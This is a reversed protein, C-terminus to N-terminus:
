VWNDGSQDDWSDFDQNDQQSDPNYDAKDDNHDDNDVNWNNQNDDENQRSIEEHLQDIEDQQLINQDELERLLEHDELNQLSQFQDFGIRGQELLYTLLAGAALGGAFTGFRGMGPGGTNSWGGMGNYNTPGYYDSRENYVNRRPEYIQPRNRQMLPRIILLHVLVIIIIIAIFLFM